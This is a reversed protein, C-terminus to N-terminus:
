LFLTYKNYNYKFSLQGLTNQRDLELQGSRVTEQWVGNINRYVRVLLGLQTLFRQELESVNDTPEFEIIASTMNVMLDSLGTDEDLSDSWLSTQGPIHDSSYFELKLYPFSKQFSKNVDKITMDRSILLKM